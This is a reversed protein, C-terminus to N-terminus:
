ILECDWVEVGCDVFEQNIRDLENRDTWVNEM